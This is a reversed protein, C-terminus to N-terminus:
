NSFGNYQSFLIDVGIIHALSFTIVLVLNNSDLKIFDLILLIVHTYIKLYVICIALYLKLFKSLEISVLMFWLFQICGYSPHLIINWLDVVVPVLFYQDFLSFYTQIYSFCQSLAKIFVLYSAMCSFLFTLNHSNSVLYMSLDLFRLHVVPIVTNSDHCYLCLRLIHLIM